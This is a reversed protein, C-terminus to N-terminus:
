LIISNDEIMWDLKLKHIASVKDVTSFFLNNFPINNRSLWKLTITKMSAVITSPLDKDTRATIIFLEHDLYLQQIVKVANIRLFDNGILLEKYYKERFDKEISRGWGFIDCPKYASINIKTDINKEYCYKTGCEIYYAALNNIVGDIDIGIRM